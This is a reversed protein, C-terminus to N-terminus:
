RSTINDAGPIRGVGSKPLQGKPKTNACYIMNSQFIWAALSFIWVALEWSSGM